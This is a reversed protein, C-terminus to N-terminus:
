AKPDNPSSWLRVIQLNTPNTLDSAFGFLLIIILRALKDLTHWCCELCSRHDQKTCIMPKKLDAFNFDGHKSMIKLM